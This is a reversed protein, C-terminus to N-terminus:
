TIGSLAFDRVDLDPWLAAIDDYPTIAVTTWAPRRRDGSLRHHGTIGQAVPAPPGGAPVFRYSLSYLGAPRGASPRM